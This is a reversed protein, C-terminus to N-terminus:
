GGTRAHAPSKAGFMERDRSHLDNPDFYKDAWKGDTGLFWEAEVAASRKDAPPEATMAASGKGKPGKATQDLFNFHDILLVAEITFATVVAEDHICLLNDGNVHEAALALNSSGCYVVPDDGGFGCVVFKHHIQHAEPSLINPVQDFPPPLQTYKPKGTVLVGHSQGVPYFTIGQPDDSIGYSFLRTDKHLATLKEYVPNPATSSTTMLAFFVNGGKEAEQDCRKVIEDLRAAAADKSRPSFTVDFRPLGGHEEFPFPKQAFDSAIFAPAKVGDDWAEQFVGAYLKAVEPNQFVIVHNANVYLGTVSFNTSGTLVSEPQDGRHVIFVKDHSYRGFRGRKIAAAGAAKAFLQEFEDEPKPEAADHHLDANDLIIRAKGAKGLTLLMHVVGPDNLDYAFVDIRADAAQDVAELMEYVRSRATFGLWKYQQEYTYPHGQPDKGAVKGTDYDLPADTPRTPLKDGFHHVFAQSQVFGRTFGLKVAGDKFPQLPVTIRAGAAADLALMHRNADFYRPTVTYTYDGFPPDLGQHDLGPVHVWRFKHIPANATSYPPEDPVQAHAAPDKFQLDNWLFYSPRGPPTVQITFGALDA